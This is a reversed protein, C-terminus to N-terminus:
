LKKAAEEPVTVKTTGVDKIVVATKLDVDRDNGNFKVNGQVSIEYKALSNDKLWFKVSGKAGSVDPAEGGSPRGFRVREKLADATLDGSYVGDALKLEKTKGALDDAEAAPTKFNQLINAVMRPAGQQDNDAAVVSVLKWGDDLKMVGKGGKIVADIGTDGGSLTLFTAAGKETKGVITGVENGGFEISTKWSYNDKGGLDKAAAKVADQPNSDAALLSGAVLAMTGFLIQTKM